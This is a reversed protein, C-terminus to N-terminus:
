RFSFDINSSIEVWGGAILSDIHLDSTRRSFVVIAESMKVSNVKSITAPAPEVVFQPRSLSM